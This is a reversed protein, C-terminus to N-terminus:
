VCVCLRHKAQVASPEVAVAAERHHKYYLPPAPSPLPTSFDVSVAPGATIGLFTVQM